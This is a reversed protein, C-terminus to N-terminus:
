APAKCSSDWPPSTKKEPQRIVFRSESIYLDSAILGFYVAALLTPVLVLVHFMWHRRLWDKVKPLLRATRTPSAM